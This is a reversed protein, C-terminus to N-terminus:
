AIDTFGFFFLSLDAPDAALNDIAIAEVTRDSWIYGSLARDLDVFFFVPGALGKGALRSSM